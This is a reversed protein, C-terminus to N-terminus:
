LLAAGELCLLKYKTELGGPASFGGSGAQALVRHCPIIIPIPNAGCAQGVARAGTAPEAGGLQRALEGYSRTAGYPIETLAQWVRRQFPAGRPALPLDFRTLDRAFYAALQEAAARLLGTAAQEAGAHQSAGFRLSVLRGAAERLTLPGLPSDLMLETADSDDDRM